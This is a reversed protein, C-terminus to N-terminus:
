AGPVSGPPLFDIAMMSSNTLVSVTDLGPWDPLSARGGVNIFVQPAELRRGDVQVAHPGVFRAHGLVIEVGKHM